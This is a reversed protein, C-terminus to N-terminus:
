QLVLKEQYEFEDNSLKVYYVGTALGSLDLTLNEIQNQYEQSFVLKGDTTYVEIKDLDTLEGLQIQVIGKSPNPHIEFNTQAREDVGIQGDITVTVEASVMCDDDNTISCTYTTTETPNADTIAADPDSLGTTPSWSYTIGGTAELTTTEGSAITVNDSITVPFGAEVTATVIVRPSLCDPERIKWDFFFYYFQSIM